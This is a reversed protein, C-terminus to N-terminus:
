VCLRLQGANAEIWGKAAEVRDPSPQRGYNTRMAGPRYERVYKLMRELVPSPLTGLVLEPHRPDVMDLSEVALHDATIAGTEYLRLLDAIM